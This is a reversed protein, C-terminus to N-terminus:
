LRNKEISLGIDDIIMWTHINKLMWYQIIEYADLLPHKKGDMLPHKQYSTFEMWRQINRVM